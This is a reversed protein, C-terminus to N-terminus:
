TIRFSLVEGCSRWFPSFFQLYGMKKGGTVRGDWYINEWHIIFMVVRSNRFVDLLRM